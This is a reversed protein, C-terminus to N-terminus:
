DIMEVLSPTPSCDTDIGGRDSKLVVVMPDSAQISLM